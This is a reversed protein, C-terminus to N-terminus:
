NVGADEMWILSAMRGTEGDRRFSFFRRADTFTCWRGGFVASVGAGQLRRHALDYLDAYWRDGEGPVFAGEAGGDRQLFRARVEPGVEFAEPGIAPGLWALLEDARVDLARVGAEVIGNALGRWGAHLAAVRTGARDCLLIPLCDATLVACVIGPRRAFGGDAEGPGSAVDQVELGHVQRLWVPEAPLALVRGLRRRNHRVNEEEDGVHDALNLSDWPAPSVGGARTTTCARVRAPAPWDPVIVEVGDPEGM